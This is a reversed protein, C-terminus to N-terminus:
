YLHLFIFFFLQQSIKSLGLLKQLSTIITVLPERIVAGVVDPLGLLTTSFTHLAPLKILVQVKNGFKILRQFLLVQLNLLCLTLLGVGALALYHTRKLM